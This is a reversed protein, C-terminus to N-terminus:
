QAANDCNYMEHYVGSARILTEHNGMEVIKGGDLVIILDSDNITSLRHAIVIQTAGMKKFEDSILRENINDLSSTAEDLLLVRPKGVIARALAIRQRQGGSFNLGMESVGTYYGMPMSEIEQDIHALRCARRVEDLTIEGRNMAINEFISNNFLMIDQPVIGIQKRISKKNLECFDKNDFLISGETPEYLGVIIKALTSKGSGSKGVLAVKMGREIKLNIDKVVLPSDKTYSFGVNKLEINGKLISEENNENNEEMEARMIDAIREFIVSSTILNTWLDFVSSSLNFFTGALSFIAVVSGITMKGVQLLYISIILICVPSFFQLMAFASNIYNATRENKVFKEIYRKFVKDWKVLVEDEIASMKVGLMAYITEMQVGQVVSQSTVIGRSNEAVVNRTFIVLIMNIGFLFTSLFGIICSKEFLYVLICVAAGCNIVSNIVENAFIDRIKLCSNVSYVLDGCSRTSFFKYPLHVLRKFVSTNLEKDIKARLWIQFYNRVVIIFFYLLSGILLMLFVMCIDINKKDEMIRDVLGQTIMPLGITFCYAGLTCLLVKVYLAKNKFIYPLFYSWINGKKKERVFNKGPKAIVAYGSYAEKFERAEYSVRGVAPDVVIFRHNRIRELIIFHNNNWFIIAPLALDKLHESPIKYSKVEFNYEELLEALQQFSSGDRGVELKSRVETIEVHNGYYRNLMCICCLGCETKQTQAIFPVHLRARM